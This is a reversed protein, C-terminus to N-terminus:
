TLVAEIHRTYGPLAALRARYAALHQLEPKEGPLLGWRWVSPAATIDALTLGDGAIFAQRAANQRALHQDLQIFPAVAAERGADGQGAAISKRLRTLPPTLSISSWDMWRDIGARGALSEPWLLWGGSRAALYRLVANSEWVVTEGDRLVPVKGFPNMALFEPTDNGGFKGGTLIFEFERGLEELLWLVKATNSSNRRGYLKLM